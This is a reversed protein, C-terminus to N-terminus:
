RKSNKECFDELKLTEDYRSFLELISNIDPQESRTLFNKEERGTRSGVGSGNACGGKCAYPEFILAQNQPELFERSNSLYSAANGLGQEVHYRIDPLLAALTKGIGGFAALTLGHGNHGTEPACPAYQQIDVAEEALWTCLGHITINYRILEENNKTIFENKKLLCPSLFALPEELRRYTKLYRAACLLPSFVPYLYGAYEDRRGTLYRNMGVCASTILKTKPNKKLITYYAWVTIDAYPLVPYFAQVGLSHLYGLLRPFQEFVAPAAPAILMRIPLGRALDELFRPLDDGAATNRTKVM